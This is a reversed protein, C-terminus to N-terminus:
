SQVACQMSHQALQSKSCDVGQTAKSHSETKFMGSDVKQEMDLALANQQHWHRMMSAHAAPILSESAPKHQVQRRQAAWVFDAEQAAVDANISSLNIRGWQSPSLAHLALSPMHFPLGWMDFSSVIPRGEFLDPHNCVQLGVHQILV